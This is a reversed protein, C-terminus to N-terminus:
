RSGDITRSVRPDRTAEFPDHQRGGPRLTCSGTCSGHLGRAARADEGRALRAAGIHIPAASVPTAGTRQSSTRRNMPQDRSRAKLLAAIPPKGVNVSGITTLRLAQRQVYTVGLFRALNDASWRKRILSAEETIESAQAETIKGGMKKACEMVSWIQDKAKPNHRVWAILWRSFDETQAAGVYRGHLVIERRRKAPFDFNKRQRGKM